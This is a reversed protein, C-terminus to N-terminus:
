EKWGMCACVCIDAPSIDHTRSFEGGIVISFEPAADSEDLDCPLISKLPSRNVYVCMREHCLSQIKRTTWLSLALSRSLIVSFPEWAYINWVIFCKNFWIYRRSWTMWHKDTHAQLFINQECFQCMWIAHAISYYVRNGNKKGNDTTKSSSNFFFVWFLFRVCTTLFLSMKFKSHAKRNSHIKEVYKLHKLFILHSNVTDWSYICNWNRDTFWIWCPWIYTFCIFM